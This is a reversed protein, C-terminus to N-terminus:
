PSSWGTAASGPEPLGPRWCRFWRRPLAELSGPRGIFLPAVMHPYIVLDRLPLLPTEFLGDEGPQTDKVHDFEALAGLMHSFNEDFFTM